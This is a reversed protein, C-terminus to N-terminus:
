PIYTPDTFLIDEISYISIGEYYPKLRHGNVKFIKSTTLSQIEVAGHDFVKTVIFPGIWRSRLKGPFLHLKSNYLLVKQGECFTKKKLLKDHYAKTREKYTFSSEYADHRLEELEQLQLKRHIGAEDINLNCKKIVWLTRHELEVPLHCAKGYVLRYPSMDLPTKYATRYAWLADELRQSWDARNPNVTKQLIAKIERNSIEAQGSTQPHYATSVKHTVGYKKLLSAMLKSCFHVGSDSILVRPVGFRSFINSRLFECVVKSDGTRTAKAEVWRSVYDCALLIYVFGNSKPFPGMFDIAWVYFIECIVISNLPM